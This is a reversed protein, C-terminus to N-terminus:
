TLVLVFWGVDPHYDNLAEWIVFANGDSECLADKAIDHWDTDDKGSFKQGSGLPRRWRGLVVFIMILLRINFNKSVNVM